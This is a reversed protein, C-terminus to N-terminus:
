HIEQNKTLDKSLIFFGGFIVVLSVNFLVFFISYFQDLYSSVWPNWLFSTVAILLFGLALFWPSVFKSNKALRFWSYTFFLAIPIFLGYILGFITLTVDKLIFLGILFWCEGGLFILLAPLYNVKTDEILLMSTGIWVGSAFLVLPLLWIHFILPNNIDTLPLGFIRLCLGIFSFAYLLFSFGWVTKYHNSLLYVGIMSLILLASLSLTFQITSINLEPILLSSYQTLTIAAVSAYIIGVVPLWPRSRGFEVIQQYHNKHYNETKMEDVGTWTVQCM